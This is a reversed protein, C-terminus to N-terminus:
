TSVEEVEVVVRGGPVREARVVRLDDIQGDDDFVGAFELGDQIAKVLNDLDRRRRDPPHAVIVMRLRGRYHQAAGQLLVESLVAARYARGERSVLTRGNINRWYRNVSPPWPLTIRTM